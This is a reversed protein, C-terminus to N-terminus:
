VNGELNNAIMAIAENAHKTPSQIHRQGGYSNKFHKFLIGNKFFQVM